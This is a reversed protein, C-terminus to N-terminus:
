TLGRRRSGCLPAFSIERLREAEVGALRCLRGRRVQLIDVAAGVALARLVVSVLGDLVEAGEALQDEGVRLGALEQLVKAKESPVNSSVTRDLGGLLSPRAFIVETLDILRRRRVLPDARVALGAVVVRAHGIGTQLLLTLSGLLLALLLVLELLLELVIRGRACVVDGARGILALLGVSSRCGTVDSRSVPVAGVGIVVSLRRVKAAASRLGSGARVQASLRALRERSRLGAEGRSVALVEARRVLALGIFAPLARLRALVGAGLLGLLLALAELVLHESANRILM